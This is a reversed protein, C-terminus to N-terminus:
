PITMFSVTNGNTVVKLFPNSFPISIDIQRGDFEVFTARWIGGIPFDINKTSSWNLDFNTLSVVPKTIDREEIYDLHFTVKGSTGRHHVITTLNYCANAVNSTNNNWWWDKDNGEDGQSWEKVPHVSSPVVRWGVTVPWCHQIDKLDDHDSSQNISPTSRNAREVDPVSVTTTFVIKGPLVPLSTIIIKFTATKKGSFFGNKYPILVQIYSNSLSTSSKSFEAYPIEFSIRNTTKVITNFSKNNLLLIADYDQRSLSIFNGDIDIKIKDNIQTCYTPSYKSIQPIKESFPIINFATQGRNIIDLVDSMTQSEISNVKSTLDNFVNKETSNLKDLTVNLENEYAKKANEIALNAQGGAQVILINGANQAQIVLNNLRDGLRDLAVGLAVGGAVPQAEVRQLTVFMGFLFMLLLIKKTM